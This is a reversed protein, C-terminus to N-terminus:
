KVGGLIFWSAGNGHAPAPREGRAVAAFEEDPVTSFNPIRTKFCNNRAFGARECEAMPDQARFGAYHPENNYYADWDLYFNYYPDCEAAPPLEMHVMVGGPRLVRHIEKLIARNSKASQEHLFFSSVVLDFSNDAYDMKRADMQAFHANYGRDRAYAHAFRLVPAGVDIGHGECDPFVDLYPFLNNGTTTGIDLLKRPAFGAFHIKLWEAISKGVGGGKVRLKLGASFVHTGHWYLAGAVADNPQFETHFCGPQLHIDMASVDRPIELRPNLRLSGPGAAKAAASAARNIGDMSREIQPLVSWWTMEQATYRMASWARFYPVPLMARRVERGDRPLHGTRAAYAPAVDAEYQARMSQAMDVMLRKRLSSVFRQRARENHTPKSVRDIPTARPAVDGDM